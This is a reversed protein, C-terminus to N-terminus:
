KASPAPLNGLSFADPKTRFGGSPGKKVPVLWGREKAAEAIKECVRRASTIDPVEETAGKAKIAIKGKKADLVDYIGASVRWGTKGAIGLAILTQKGDPSNLKISVSTAPKKTKVVPAAAPTEAPATKAAPATKTENKAM